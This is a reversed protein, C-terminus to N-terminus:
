IKATQYKIYNYNHPIMYAHIHGGNGVAVGRGGDEEAFGVALVAFDLGAGEGVEGMKGRMLDFGEAQGQRTRERGAARGQGIGEKDGAGKWVTM